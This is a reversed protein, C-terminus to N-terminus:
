RALGLSEVLIRGADEAMSATQPLVARLRGRVEAERGLLATLTSVVRVPTFEEAPVVFDETGLLDRNIGRAKVSYGLSVTPVASSLAAITAHTRAGVFAHLRAICWKIEDAALSAPLVLPRPLGREAVSEAVRSLLLHDNELPVVVHPVLVLPRGVERIIGEVVDAVRSTWDGTGGVYREYLPSANFGVADRLLEPDVDTQAPCRPELVFAPDAVREVRASVGLRTLYDATMQERALILEVGSLERLAHAEYRPEASFPGVSAGWLAVPLGHSLGYRNLAFFAEAGGYDLSFNDGGLQVLAASESVFEDLAGFQFMRSMAVRPAVRLLVNKEMWSLSFRRSGWSGFKVRVCDGDSRVDDPDTGMPAIVFTPEHLARRLIALTAMEIAQCGRNLSTGNGGLILQTM